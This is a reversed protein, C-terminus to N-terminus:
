ELRAQIDHADIVVLVRDGDLAVISRSLDVGDALVFRALDAEDVQM